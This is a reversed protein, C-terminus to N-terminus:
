QPEVLHSQAASSGFGNCRCFLKCNVNLVPACLLCRALPHATWLAAALSPPSPHVLRLLSYSYECRADYYVRSCSSPALALSYLESNVATGLEAPFPRPLLVTAQTPASLLTQSSIPSSPGPCLTSSSQAKSRGHSSHTMSSSPSQSRLSASLSVCPQTEFVRSPCFSCLPSPFVFASPLTVWGVMDRLLDQLSAGMSPM